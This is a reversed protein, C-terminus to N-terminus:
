LTDEFFVKIRSFARDEDCGDFTVTVTDSYTIGLQMVALLKKLSAAQTGKQITISSEFEDAMRVLEGAPRAHLGPTCKITYSFTKM